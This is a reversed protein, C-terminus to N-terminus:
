ALLTVAAGAAVLGALAYWPEKRVTRGAVSGYRQVGLAGLVFLVALAAGVVRYGVTPLYAAVGGVAAGLVGAHWERFSLSNASLVSESM